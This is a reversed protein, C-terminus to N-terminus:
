NNGGSYIKFKSEGDSAVLIAKALNEDKVAVAKVAPRHLLEGLENKETILLPCAFKEKLNKMTKFSSEGLSEDAILLKVGKRLSEIGDVGFTIKGSRICFGLYTQIKKIATTEL